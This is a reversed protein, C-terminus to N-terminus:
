DRLARGTLQLFVYELDPKQVDMSLLKGGEQSIADIIESYNVHNGKRNFIVSDDSVVLNRAYSIERMKEIMKETLGEVKLTTKEDSDITGILEDKTGSAIIKGQDMICIRQCLFEVEEMYHSTYIVTAGRRNIEKVANLIHNRSQPDIGVTPEDFIIIEPNHLLACGINLRRKMGGSYKDVREKLRDRIGIIESIENIKEKLHSGKLGYTRGWFKLNDMGTLTPYLAIEQPVFGLKSQIVKPNKIISEGQYLIEGRDPKFLTAIMSIATSKGAGNPGLLGIMEGKKVQFSIGEVAKTKNYAKHIDIIDLM